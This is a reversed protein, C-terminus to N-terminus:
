EVVHNHEDSEVNKFPNEDNLFDKVAPRQCWYKKTIKKTEEEDSIKAYDYLTGNDCLKDGTIVRSWKRKVETEDYKSSMKTLHNWIMFGTDKDFLSFCLYAVNIWLGGNDLYEFSSVNLLDLQEQTPKVPM